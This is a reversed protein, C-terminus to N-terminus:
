TEHRIFRVIIYCPVHHIFVNYLSDSPIITEKVIKCWMCSACMEDMVDM